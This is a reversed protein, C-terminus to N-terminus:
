QMLWRGCGRSTVGDVVLTVKTDFTEDSMGDSCEGPMALVEVTHTETRLSYRQGGGFEVPAVPPALVRLRGYDTIVLVWKEPVVEVLWGPEQGVARLAVGRLAASEWPSAATLVRCERGTEENPQRYMASDSKFWLQHGEGAYLAGSASLVQAMDLPGRPADIRAVTENVLVGVPALDDCDLVFTHIARFVEPMPPPPAEPVVSVPKRSACADAFLVVAAVAVMGLVRVVRSSRVVAM